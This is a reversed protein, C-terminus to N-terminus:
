SHKLHIGSSHSKRYSRELTLRHYVVDNKTLFLVIDPM